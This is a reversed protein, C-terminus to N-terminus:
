YHKTIAKQIVPFLQRIGVKRLDKPWKAPKERRTSACRELPKASWCGDNGWRKGLFHLNGPIFICFRAGELEILVSITSNL